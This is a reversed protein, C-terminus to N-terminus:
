YVVGSNGEKVIFRYNPNVTICIRLAFNKQM